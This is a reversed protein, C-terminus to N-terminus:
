SSVQASWLFHRDFPCKKCGFPLCSTLFKARAALARRDGANQTALPHCEGFPERMPKALYPLLLSDQALIDVSQATRQTRRFGNRRGCPPKRRPAAASTRQPLAPAEPSCSDIFDRSVSM